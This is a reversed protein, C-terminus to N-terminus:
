LEKAEELISNVVDKASGFVMLTKDSEFHIAFRVNVGQEELFDSLERVAHQAQGAALGKSPPGNEPERHNRCDRNRSRAV